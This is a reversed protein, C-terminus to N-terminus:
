KGNIKLWAEACAEAPNEHFNDDEDTEELYLWCCWKQRTADFHVDYYPCKMLIDTAIPAFVFGAVDSLAMQARSSLSFLVLEGMDAVVWEAGGEDYWIQMFEAAPQLFGAEKLRKATEFTVIHNM